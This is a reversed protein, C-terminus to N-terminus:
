LSIGKDKRGIQYGRQLMVAALKKLEADTWVSCVETACAEREADTMVVGAPMQACGSLALVFILRKM